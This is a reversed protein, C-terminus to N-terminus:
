IWPKVNLANVVCSKKKDAVKSLFDGSKKTCLASEEEKGFSLLTNIEESALRFGDISNPKM